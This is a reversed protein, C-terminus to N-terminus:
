SYGSTGGYGGGYGNDTMKNYVKKAGALYAGGMGISPAAKGIGQALSRRGAKTGLSKGIGGSREVADSVHKLGKLKLTDGITASGSSKLGKILRSGVQGVEEVGAVKLFGKTFSM